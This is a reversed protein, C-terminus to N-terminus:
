SDRVKVKRARKSRRPEAAGDEVDAVQGDAAPPAPAPQVALATSTTGAPIDPAIRREASTSAGATVVESDSRGDTGTNPQGRSSATTPPPPVLVYPTGHRGRGAVSTPRLTGATSTTAAEASTGVGSVTEVDRMVVDEVEMDSTGSESDQNVTRDGQAIVSSNGAAHPSMARSAAVPPPATTGQVDLNRIGPPGKKGAKIVTRTRAVAPVPVLASAPLAPAPVAPLAPAPLAPLAPAPVPPLAPAPLAPLTRAPGAPRAVSVGDVTAAASDTPPAFFNPVSQSSPGAQMFGPLAFGSSKSPDAVRGPHFSAACVPLLVHSIDDFIATSFRLYDPFGEIMLEGDDKQSSTNIVLTDRLAMGTVLFWQQLDGPATNEKPRNDMIWVLLREWSTRVRHISDPIANCDYSWRAWDGPTPDRFSRIRTLQDKWAVLLDRYTSSTCLSWLYPFVRSNGQVWTPPKDQAADTLEVPPPISIAAAVAGTLAIEEEEPPPVASAQDKRRPRPLIRKAPASALVPPVATQADPARSATKDHENGSDDDTGEGTDSDSDLPVHEPESSSNESFSASESEDAARAVRKGKSAKGARGAAKRAPKAGARGRPAAASSARSGEDATSPDNSRALIGPPLRIPRSPKSRKTASEAPTAPAYRAAVLKEGDLIGAFKFREDNQRDQITHILDWLAHVHKARMQRPQQINIDLPVLEAPFFHSRHNKVTAWPVATKPIGCALSYNENLYFRLIFQRRSLELIPKDNENKPLIPLADDDDYHAFVYEKAEMAGESSQSPKKALLLEEAYDGLCKFTNTKWDPYKEEFKPIRPDNFVQGTNFTASRLSLGDKDPYFFIHLGVASLQTWYLLAYAKSWGPARKEALMVRVEADPGENTWEEAKAAFVEREEDTLENWLQSRAKNLAALQKCREEELIEEAREHIRDAEVEHFVERATWTAKISKPLRPESTPTNNGIWTQIKHKLYGRAFLDTVSHQRAQLFKTVLLEKAASREARSKTSWTKHVEELQEIEEKTLTVDETDAM